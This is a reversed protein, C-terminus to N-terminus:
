AGFMTARVIEFLCPFCLRKCAATAFPRVLNMLFEFTSSRLVSQRVEYIKSINEGVSIDDEAIGNSIPGFNQTGHMKVGLDKRIYSYMCRTKGLKAIAPTPGRSGFLYERRLKEHLVTAKTAVRSRFDSLDGLSPASFNDSLGVSNFFDIIVPTSSAAIAHMQDASDMVTTKDFTQEMVRYLKGSLTNQAPAAIFSGFGSDIEEELIVKLGDLFELRLARLDM